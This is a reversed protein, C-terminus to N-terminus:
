AMRRCREEIMCLMGAYFDHSQTESTGSMTKEPWFGSVYMYFLANFIWGVRDIDWCARFDPELAKRVCDTFDTFDTIEKIRPAIFPELWSM